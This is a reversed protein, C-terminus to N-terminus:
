SGTDHWGRFLYLGRYCTAWVLTRVCMHMCILYSQGQLRKVLFYFHRLSLFIGFEDVDKNKLTRQKNNQLVKLNIFIEVNIYLRKREM